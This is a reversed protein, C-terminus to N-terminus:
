DDGRGIAMANFQASAEHAFVGLRVPHLFADLPRELGTQFSGHEVIGDGGSSRGEVRKRCQAIRTSTDTVPESEDVTVLAPALRQDFRAEVVSIYDVRGLNARCCPAM